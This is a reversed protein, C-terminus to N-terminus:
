HDRLRIATTYMSCQFWNCNLEREITDSAWMLTRSSSRSSRSGRDWNRISGRRHRWGYGYPVRHVVVLVIVGCSFLPLDM